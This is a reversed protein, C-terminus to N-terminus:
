CHSAGHAYIRLGKFIIGNQYVVSFRPYQSALGKDIVFKFGRAQAVVDTEKPEDLAM